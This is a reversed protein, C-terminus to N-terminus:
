RQKIGILEEGMRKTYCFNNAFNNIITRQTKEINDQDMEQIKLYELQWGHGSNYFKEDLFGVKDSLAYLSSVHCFCEISQCSAALDFLL